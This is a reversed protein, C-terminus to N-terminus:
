RGPIACRRANKTRKHEARLARARSSVVEGVERVCVADTGKEVFVLAQSQNSSGCHLADVDRLSDTHNVM